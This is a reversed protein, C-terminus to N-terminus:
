SAGTLIVGTGILPRPPVHRGIWGQVPSFLTQLVILLSFTIQLAPPTLHLDTRLAPTFLTWVYQPSSVAVM